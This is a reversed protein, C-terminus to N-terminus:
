LAWCCFGIVAFLVGAIVWQAGAVRAIKVKVDNVKCQLGKMETKVEVVDTKLGKFHNNKLDCILAKLEGIEEKLTVLEECPLQRRRPKGNAM